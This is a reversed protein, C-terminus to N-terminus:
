GIDCYRDSQGYNNLLGQALCSTCAAKHLGGSFGTIYVTIVITLPRHHHHPPPPYCIRQLHFAQELPECM